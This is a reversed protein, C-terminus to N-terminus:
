QNEVPLAFRFTSGEGKTSEAWIRGGHMEIILKCIALGLGTGGISTNSTDARYFKEFLNTQQESTIGIGADSISIVQFGANNQVTISVEGGEPSYKVANSLLNRIVQALRFPDASIRPLDPPITRMFRHSPSTEIFPQLVEDILKEIDILEPNIDLEGRSELRSIDLL